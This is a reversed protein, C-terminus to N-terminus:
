SHEEPIEPTTTAIPEPLHARHARLVAAVTALDPLLGLGALLDLYQASTAEDPAELVEHWRTEDFGLAEALEHEYINETRLTHSVAGQLLMPLPATDSPAVAYLESSRKM